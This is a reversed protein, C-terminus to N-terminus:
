EVTATSIDAHTCGQLLKVFADLEHLEGFHGDYLSLTTELSKKGATEDDACDEEQVSSLIMRPMPSSLTADTGLRPMLFKVDDPQIKRGLSLSVDLGVIVRGYISPNQLVIDTWSSTSSKEGSRSSGVPCIATPAPPQTSEPRISAVMEGITDIVRDTGEYMIQFTRLMKNYIDVRKHLAEQDQLRPSLKSGM